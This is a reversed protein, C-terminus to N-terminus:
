HGTVYCALRARGKVLPSLGIRQPVCGALRQRCLCRDPPGGISGKVLPGRGVRQPFYRNTSGRPRPVFSLDVQTILPSFARGRTPLDAHYKVQVNPRDAHQDSSSVVSLTHCPFGLCIPAGYYESNLPGRTITHVWPVRCAPSMRTGGRVM